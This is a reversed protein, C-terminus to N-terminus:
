QLLDIMSSAIFDAAKGDGYFSPSQSLDKGFLQDFAAIVKAEDADALIAAGSNVLEVWETEPRLIVCPKSFYYAEKQVGGSDTIVIAANRELAIMELFSAPETIHIRKCARVRDFIKDGTSNMIRSKTRPHLPLILSLDRHEAIFLLASFIARLREPQDTNNDRHITVLGFQGATLGLKKYCEEYDVSKEAFYMSNDFMVDGCHFVAPHDVSFPPKAAIDFGEKKLNEVGTKTPTFLLTSVHDTLIRNVEEPMSKNFSRLGAEIHIVPIRLKAAALSGAVTSNTDGYVVLADFNGEKLVKEIGELMKATQAGHSGSGSNLQHDPEPIGLERFFVASMNDDYHQGTHLIEERIQGSFRERIARSLAAAKIIQPRAGVITLIKKM